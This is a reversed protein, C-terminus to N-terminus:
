IIQQMGFHACLVQEMAHTPAPHQTYAEFQKLAQFLFMEAGRIISAGAHQADQLLKTTFPTYIADLVILDPHLATQPVLSASPAQMGVSTTQILAQCQPLHTSLTELPHAEGKFEQALQQARALTRNFFLPTGQAQQVAYAAARATGGAGLIAVTSDKPLNRRRLPEFIGYWDTNTGHLAGEQQVVTNVARLQQAAPGLSDLLPIVSSKHPITCTIGRFGMARAGQIAQPLQEPIVHNAVFVFAEDLGCARYAANHLK